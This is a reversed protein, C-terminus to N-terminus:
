YGGLTKAVTTPTSTDGAYGGSTGLTDYVGRGAKMRKLRAEEDAADILTPDNEPALPTEGVKPATISKDLRENARQRGEVLAKHLPSGHKASFKDLPDGVPIHSGSSM